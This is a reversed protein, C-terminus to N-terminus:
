KGEKFLDDFQADLAVQIEEIDLDGIKVDSAAIFQAVLPGLATAVRELRAQLYGVRRGKPAAALLFYHDEVQHFLLSGETTETILATVKGTTFLDSLMGLATLAGSTLSGLSELDVARGEVTSALIFGNSSEFVVLETVGLTRKEEALRAAIQQILEM